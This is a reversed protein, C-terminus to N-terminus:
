RESALKIFIFILIFCVCLLITYRYYNADAVLSSNNYAADITEYQKVIEDLQIREEMLTKYNSQLIKDKEEVKAVSKDYKQNFINILQKNINILQININQLQYSYYVSSKVIATSQSTPVLHGNGSMLQCTNLTNSFTGGSCNSNEACATECNTVTSNLITNLNNQGNLSFNKVNIFTDIQVSKIYKQSVENYQNLLENFQKILSGSQYSM